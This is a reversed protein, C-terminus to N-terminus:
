VIAIEGARDAHTCRSFCGAQDNFLRPIYANGANKVQNLADSYGARGKAWTEGKRKVLWEVGSLSGQDVHKKAIAEIRQFRKSATM